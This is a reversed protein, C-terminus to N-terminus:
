DNGDKVEGEIYCYNQPAKTIKKLLHTEESVIWSNFESLEKPEFIELKSIHIAYGIKRGENAQLLKELKNDWVTLPCLYKFMSVRDVCSDKEFSIMNSGFIEEVKNCWFRAIVKGNFDSRYKPNCHWYYNFPNHTDVTHYPRYAGKWLYPKSKTCYIYVWGVYNKPFQKRVEITKEGNLIKEVWQPKISLLISKM